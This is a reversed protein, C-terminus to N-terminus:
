KLWVVGISVGAVAAATLVRTNVRVWSAVERAVSTIIAAVRSGSVGVSDGCTWDVFFLPVRPSYRSWTIILDAILDKACGQAVRYVIIAVIFRDTGCVQRQLPAGADAGHM